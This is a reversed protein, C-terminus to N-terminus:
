YVYNVTAQKSLGELFIFFCDKMSNLPAYLVVVDSFEMIVYPYYKHEVKMIM